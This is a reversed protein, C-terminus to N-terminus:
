GASSRAGETAEEEVKRLLFEDFDKHARPDGLTLFVFVSARCGCKCPWGLTKAFERWQDQIWLSFEWAAMERRFHAHAAVWRPNVGAPYESAPYCALAQEYTM